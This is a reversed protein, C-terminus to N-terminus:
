GYIKSVIFEVLKKAQNVGTIKEYEEIGGPNANVECVLPRKDITDFFDIACYDLKLIKAVEEAIKIQENTASFKEEDDKGVTNDKLNVTDKRLVSYIAKGGVVVVRINNGINDYVFEQFIYANQGQEILLEELEQRNKITKVGRGGYGFTPKAVFPYKLENEVKEIFINSRSYDSIQLGDFDTNGSLTKPLPIDYSHLKVYTLFKDDSSMMSSHKNFCPINLGEFISSLYQDKVLQICFDYQKLDLNIKNREVSLVYEDIKQFDLDINYENFFKKFMPYAVTTQWKTFGVLLGKRNNNMYIEGINANYWMILFIYVNQM